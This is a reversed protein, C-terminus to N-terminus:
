ALQHRRAYATAEAKSHADIKLYLNAIHREVTRQSLYLAEAMERNSRGQAILRLVELERPSLGHQAAAPPAIPLSDAAVIAALVGAAMAIAEDLAMSQGATRAAAYTDGDMVARLATLVEDHQAGEDSPAPMGTRERLADHAGLLHLACEAQGTVWALRPIAALQVALQWQWGSSASIALTEQLGLAAQRYAGRDFAVAALGVLGHHINSPHGAARALALAEESLAQRGDLDQPDAPLASLNSLSRAANVDDGLERALALSQEWYAAAREPDGLNAAAIGLAILLWPQPTREGLAQCIALAETTLPISGAIDGRWIAAVGATALAHARASTPLDAGPLALAAQLQTWGDAWSGRHFWLGRLDGVLRLCQQTDGHESLWALAARLNEREPELRDLWQQNGGLEMWPWAQRALALYVEAHRQRVPAEEGSAALQELGFERITELMRFRPEGNAQASQQVLSQDVLATLGELIENGLVTQDDAAVVAEAAELTWGDVFVSLECFLRQESPSLLDYSWTITNRMTQLRAPADRAGGTLLPLRNTMRALLAAPSLVTTRAAALEIALPLGDLRRCIEAVAHAHQPTLSFDPRAARARQLFLAVAPNAALEALTAAHDPTPLALPPVPFEQEAHVHLPIRSTVLITVNPAGSLLDAIMPAADVVQEFNDVVLLLHRAELVAHLQEVVPRSGTEYVGIAQAIAVPVLDPNNLAALSVVIAGDSFKDCLSDAVQLAVRTKGVGGPGTLTVLPVDARTLLASVAAVEQERGVLPTRPIPFRPVLPFHDSHPITAM